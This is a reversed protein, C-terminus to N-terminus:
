INCVKTVVEKSNVEKYKTPWFTQKTKEMLHQLFIQIFKKDLVINDLIIFM